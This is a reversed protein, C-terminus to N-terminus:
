CSDIFAGLGETGSLSIAISFFSIAFVGAPFGPTWVEPVDYAYGDTGGSTVSFNPMFDGTGLAAKGTGSLFCVLVGSKSSDDIVTPIVTICLFNPSPFTRESLFPCM